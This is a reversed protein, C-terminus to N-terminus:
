DFLYDPQWSGLGIFNGILNSIETSFQVFAPRYVLQQLLATKNSTNVQISFICSIVGLETEVKYFICTDTILAVKEDTYNKIVSGIQNAIEPITARAEIIIAPLIRSFDPEFVITYTM